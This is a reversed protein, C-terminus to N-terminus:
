IYYYSSSALLFNLAASILSSCQMRYTIIVWLASYDHKILIIDNFIGKCIVRQM